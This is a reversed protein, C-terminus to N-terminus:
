VAEDTEQSSDEKNEQDDDQKPKWGTQKIIEEEEAKHDAFAKELEDRKPAFEDVVAKANLWLRIANQKVPDLDRVLSVADEHHEEVNKMKADELNLQGRFRDLMGLATNTYNDMEQMTFEVEVGKKIFKTLMPDDNSEIIEYTLKKDKSM